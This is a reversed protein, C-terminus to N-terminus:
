CPRLVGNELMGHWNSLQISGAGCVCSQGPQGKSVTILPPAGTRVWCRHLKDEPSGCNAARSDIDWDRTSDPGNPCRVMLHPETENDWEFNRPYWYAFWMAGVGFDRCREKQEGTDKRVWGIISMAPPWCKVAYDPPQLDLDGFIPEILFCQYTM